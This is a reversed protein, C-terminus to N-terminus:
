FEGFQAALPEGSPPWLPHDSPLNRVQCTIPLIRKPSQHFLHGPTSQKGKMQGNM